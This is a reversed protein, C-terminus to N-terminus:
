SSLSSYWRCSDGGAVAKISANVSSSSSSSQKLGGVVVVVVVDAGRETSMNLVCCGRSDPFSPSLSSSSKMIGSDGFPFPQAPLLIRRLRDEGCTVSLEPPLLTALQLDNSTSPTKSPKCFNDSATFFRFSIFISAFNKLSSSLLAKFSVFISHREALIFARSLRIAFLSTRPLILKKSSNSSDISSFSLVGLNLAAFTSVLVEGLGSKSNSVVSSLDLDSSLSPPDLGIRCVDKLSTASGSPFGFFAAKVKLLGTEHM